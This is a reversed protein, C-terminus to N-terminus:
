GFRTTRMGSMVQLAAEKLVEVDRSAESAVALTANALQIRAADVEDPTKYQHAISGWAEDFAQTVVKLADPGFSTGCILRLVPM